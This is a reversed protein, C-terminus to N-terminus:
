TGARHLVEGGGGGARVRVKGSKVEESKKEDSVDTAERDERARKEERKTSICGNANANGEVGKGVMGDQGMEM